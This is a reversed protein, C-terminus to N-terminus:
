LRDTMCGSVMKQLSDDGFGDNGGQGGRQDDQGIGTKIERIFRYTYGYGYGKVIDFAGVCLEVSADDPLHLNFGLKKSSSRNGELFLRLDSRRQKGDKKSEEKREQEVMSVTLQDTCQNPCGCGEALEAAIVKRDCRQQWREDQTFRKVGKRGRGDSAASAAGDDADEEDGEDAEPRAPPQPAEDEVMAEARRAPSRTPSLALVAAAAATGGACMAAWLPVALAM